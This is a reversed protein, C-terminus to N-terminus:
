EKKKKSEKALDECDKVFPELESNIWAFFIAIGSLIATIVNFTGSIISVILNYIGGEEPKPRLLHALILFAAVAAAAILYVFDDLKLRSFVSVVIAILVVAILMFFLRHLFRKIAVM